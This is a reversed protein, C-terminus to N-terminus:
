EEFSRSRPSSNNYNDIEKSGQDSKRFQEFAIKVPFGCLEIQNRNKLGM